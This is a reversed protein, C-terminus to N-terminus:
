KHTTKTTRNARQNLRAFLAKFYFVRVRAYVCFVCWVTDFCFLDLFWAGLVLLTLLCFVAWLECWQMKFRSHAIFCHMLYRFFRFFLFLFHLCHVLAFYYDADIQTTQTGNQGHILMVKGALAMGVLDCCHLHTSHWVSQTYMSILLVYM